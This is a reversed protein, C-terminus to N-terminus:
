QHEAAGSQLVSLLEPRGVVPTKAFNRASRLNRFSLVILQILGRVFFSQSMRYNISKFQYYLAHYGCIKLINRPFM